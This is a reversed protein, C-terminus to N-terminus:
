CTRVFLDKIKEFGRPGHSRKASCITSVVITHDNVKNEANACKV